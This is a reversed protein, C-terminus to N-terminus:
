LRRANPLHPRLSLCPATNLDLSLIPGAVGEFNGRKEGWFFCLPRIAHPAGITPVITAIFKLFLFLYREPTPEAGGEALQDGLTKM